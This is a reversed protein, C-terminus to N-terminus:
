VRVKFVVKQVPSKDGLKVKVLHADEPFVILVRGPEMPVWTQVSGAYEVNDSERDERVLTLSDADAVGIQERGSLLVHIDAYDRHGEWVAEEEPITTYDFRNIFVQDGDVENRGQTLQSLDAASLYDLAIDLAPCIGRYRKLHTMEAAIM